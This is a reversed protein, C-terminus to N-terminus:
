KAIGRSHPYIVPSSQFGLRPLLMHQRYAHKSLGRFAKKKYDLNFNHMKFGFTYLDYITRQSRRLYKYKLCISM